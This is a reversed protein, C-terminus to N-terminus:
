GEPDYWSGGSPGINNRTGDRDNYRPDETGADILPSGEALKYPDGDVLLPDGTTTNQASSGGATSANGGGNIGHNNKVASGFSAKVMGANNNSCLNNFIELNTVGAEAWINFAERNARWRTDQSKQLYNNFIRIVNDAGYIKINTSFAGYEVVRKVVSNCVLIRNKSGTLIIGSGDNDLRDIESGVFVFKANSGEFKFGKAKGYGFWSLKSRWNCDGTVTTRFAVTKAANDVTNFDGAVTVDSVNLEGGNQDIQGTLSSSSLATIGDNHRFNKLSSDTIKVDSDNVEIADGATHDIGSIVLGTCDNVVINKNGNSGVTFGEFPPCDAVSTFTVAGTIIVDQGNIEVLRIRKTITLDENYTGGFIAVIDGDVALDIKAQISGGALVALTEAQIVGIISGLSLIITAVKKM